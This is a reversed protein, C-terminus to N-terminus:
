LKKISNLSLTKLFTGDFEDNAGGIAEVGESFNVLYTAEFFRGSGSNRFGVFFSYGAGASAWGGRGFSTEVSNTIQVEGCGDIYPNEDTSNEECNEIEIQAKLKSLKSNKDKLMEDLFKQNYDGNVLVAAQSEGNAGTEILVQANDADLKTYTLKYSEDAMAINFIFASLMFTTLIKM